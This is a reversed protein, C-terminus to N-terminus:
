RGSAKAVPHDAVSSGNVGFVPCLAVADGTLGLLREAAALRVLRAAHSPTTVTMTIKELASM